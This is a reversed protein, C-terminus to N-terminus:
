CGAGGTSASRAICCPSPRTGSRIATPREGLSTSWPRVRGTGRRIPGWSRLTRVTAAGRIGRLHPTGAAPGKRQDNPGHGYIVRGLRRGGGTGPDQQLGRPGGPPEGRDPPQEADAGELLQCRARQGDILEGFPAAGVGPDQPAHKATDRRGPQEARRARLSVLQGARAARRHVPPREGAQQEVGIGLDPICEALDGLRYAGALRGEDVPVAAQVAVERRLRSGGGPEVGQDLAVVGLDGACRRPRDVEALEAGHHIDAASTASENSGDQLCVAAHAADHGLQVPRQRPGPRVYGSYARSSASAPKRGSGATPRARM